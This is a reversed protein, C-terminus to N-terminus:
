DISSRIWSQDCGGDQAQPHSTKQMKLDYQQGNQEQQRAVNSKKQLPFVEPTVQSTYPM